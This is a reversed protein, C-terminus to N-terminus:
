NNKKDGDENNEAECNVSEDEGTITEYTGYGDDEEEDDEEEDDHYEVPCVTDLYFYLDLIYDRVIDDSNMDEETINSIIYFDIVSPQSYGFAWTTNKRFKRAIDSVSQITMTQIYQIMRCVEFHDSPICNALKSVYLLIALPDELIIDDTNNNKSIRLRVGVDEEILKHNLDGYDLMLSAAKHVPGSGYLTVTEPPPYLVFYAKRLINKLYSVPLLSFLFALM